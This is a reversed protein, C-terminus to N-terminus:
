VLIIAFRGIIIISVSETFSCDTDSVFELTTFLIYLFYLESRMALSLIALVNPTNPLIPLLVTDSHLM